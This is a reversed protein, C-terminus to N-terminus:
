VCRDAPGPVLKAGLVHWGRGFGNTKNSHHQILLPTESGQVSLGSGLSRQRTLPPWPRGDCVRVICLSWSPPHKPKRSAGVVYPRSSAGAGDTVAGSLTLPPTRPCM